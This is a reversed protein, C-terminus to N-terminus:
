PSLSQFMIAFRTVLAALLVYGLVIHVLVFAMPIYDLNSTAVDTISFVILNSQIFAAAPDVITTNNFMLEQFMPEAGQRITPLLPVVWLYLATFLLNLGVFAGLIRTTKSGYDSLWWFVKVPINVFPRIVRDFKYIWKHGDFESQYNVTINVGNENFSIVAPKTDKESKDTNIDQPLKKLHISEIYIIIKILFWYIHPYEYWEEWQKKRINRELRTRLKPDIRAVSLGVGTFDTDDDVIENPDGIILTESDVFAHTFIAGQLYTGVLEAGELHAYSFDAREAHAKSLDVSQLEAYTLNTKKLSASHLKANKLNACNLNADDLISRELSAGELDADWMKAETLDVENLGTKRLQACVLDSNQMHAGVLEANCLNAEGFKAGGLHAYHLQVKQLDEEEFNGEELYAGIDLKKSGMNIMYERYWGNWGEIDGGTIHGKLKEYHEQNPKRREEGKDKM